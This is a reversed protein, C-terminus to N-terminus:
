GEDAEASSLPSAFDFIRCKERKCSLMPIAKFLFKKSGYHLVYFVIHTTKFIVVIAFSSFVKCIDACAELHIYYYYSQSTEEIRKWYYICYNTM